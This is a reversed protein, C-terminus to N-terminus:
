IMKFGGLDVWSWKIGSLDGHNGCKEWNKGVMEMAVALVRRQAACHGRGIGRLEQVRRQHIAERHM